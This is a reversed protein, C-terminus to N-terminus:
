NNQNKKILTNCVPCRDWSSKVNASCDPNPCEILVEEKLKVQKYKQSVEHAKDLSRLLTLDQIVVKCKSCIGTLETELITKGCNPCFGKISELLDEKSTRTIESISVINLDEYRQSGEIINILSEIGDKSKKLKESQIVIDMLFSKSFGMEVANKILIKEILMEFPERIRSWILGMNLLQAAIEETMHDLDYYVRYGLLNIHIIESLNKDKILRLATTGIIDEEHFFFIDTFKNSEKGKSFRTFMYFGLHNSMIKDLYFDIRLKKVEYLKCFESIELKYEPTSVSNLFIYFITLYFDRNQELLFFREGIKSIIQIIEFIFSEEVGIKTYFEILDSLQSIQNNIEDFIKFQETSISKENLKELGLETIFYRQEKVDQTKDEYIEKEITNKKQHIKIYKSVTSRSLGTLELLDTFRQPGMNRLIYLIKLENDELNQAQKIIKRKLKDSISWTSM